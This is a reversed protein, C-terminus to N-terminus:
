EARHTRTNFAVVIRDRKGTYPLASHRLYSPFVILTGESAPMDISGERNLYRSGYDSYANVNGRPEYFRNVGNRQSADADGPDIYYIGCWSCMPHAHVDHYGGSRTIHCWSEVALVQIRAEPEWLGQNMTAGAEHVSALCFDRLRRVDEREHQFFNFRSEFLNAKAAPAVTSPPTRQELEYCHEILGRKIATHEPNVVTFIHTTWYTRDRLAPHHPQLM